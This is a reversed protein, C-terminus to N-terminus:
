FDPPTVEGQPAMHSPSILPQLDLASLLRVAPSDALNLFGPSQTRPLLFPRPPPPPTSSESM